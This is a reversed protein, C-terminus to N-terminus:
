FIHLDSDTALLWLGPSRVLLLTCGLKHFPFYFHPLANASLLLQNSSYILLQYDTMERIISHEVYILCAPLSAILSPCLCLLASYCLNQGNFKSKLAFWEVDGTAIGIGSPANWLGAWTSITTTCISPIFSEHHNAPQLTSLRNFIIPM